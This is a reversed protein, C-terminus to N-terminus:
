RKQAVDLAALVAPVHIKLVEKPEMGREIEYTITPMNRELGSYTGLCGPTPYGISPEISYGTLAHIAKAEHDCDGNVNLLPKWSHLSIIFKPQFTEIFKVLAQNEPESNAYPGPPYKENFAQPNWDATPLNRNLDVGHGNLRSLALVGDMNFSPVLTLDMRYPFKESLVKLLGMACVVGETENGHVGGLVFIKPGPNQWRYAPIPLGNATTGFIFASPSLHDM